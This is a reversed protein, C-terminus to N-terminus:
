KYMKMTLEGHFYNFELDQGSTLNLAPIQSTNLVVSLEHLGPSLQLNCSTSVLTTSSFQSEKVESCLENDLYVYITVPGTLKNFIKSSANATFVVEGGNDWGVQTSYGDEFGFKQYEETWTDSSCSAVLIIVNAIFCSRRFM